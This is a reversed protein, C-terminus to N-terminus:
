QEIEAKLERVRYPRSWSEYRVLNEKKAYKITRRIAAQAAQRTCFVYVSVGHALVGNKPSNDFTDCLAMAANHVGQTVIFGLRKKTM